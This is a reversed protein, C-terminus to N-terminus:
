EAASTGLEYGLTLSGALVIGIAGLFFVSTLEVDAVRENTQVTTVGTSELVEYSPTVITTLAVSIGVVLVLLVLELRVARVFTSLAASEVDPRTSILLGPLIAMYDSQGTSETIQEHLVFRNFGGIAAAVLVLGIKLTLLIGYPTGALAALTPVHWAVIVIGTAFAVTVGVIAITSFQKVIPSVLRATDTSGRPLLTPLVALVALGGVWLAAGAMHAFKVLIAVAASEVAPSYRMWCFAVLMVLAGCFVMKIWLHPSGRSPSLHHGVTLAGLIVAVFVLTGWAQGTTTSTIWVTFAEVDPSQIEGIMLVTESVVAGVLTTGVLYSATRYTRTADLAHRELEHFVISFIPLAGVLLMLSVVSVGRFVPVLLNM